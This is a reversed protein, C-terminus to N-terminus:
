LIMFKVDEWGDSQSRIAWIWRISSYQSNAVIDYVINIILAVTCQIQIFRLRVISFSCKLNSAVTCRCLIRIQGIGWDESPDSDEAKGGVPFASACQENPVAWLTNYCIVTWWTCAISNIYYYLLWDSVDIKLWVTLFLLFCSYQKVRGKAGSIRMSWMRGINGDGAGTKWRELVRWLNGRALEPM